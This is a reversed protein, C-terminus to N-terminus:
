EEEFIKMRIMLKENIKLVYNILIEYLKLIKLNTKILIIM